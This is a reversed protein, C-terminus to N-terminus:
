PVRRLEPPTLANWKEKGRGWGVRGSNRDSNKKMLLSPSWEQFDGISTEPSLSQKQLLSGLPKETETEMIHVSIWVENFASPLLM